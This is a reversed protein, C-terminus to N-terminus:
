VQNIVGKEVTFCRNEKEEFSIHPMIPNPNAATIFTQGPHQVLMELFVAIKQPDLDGFVDDLLLIPTDELHDTFYYLQAMKLSLAFLRHQGQSGFKRLELEDLYFVLDDRHPGILTQEREREKERNQVLLEQYQEAIEKYHVSPTVFTKYEFDPINNIRAIESYAKQLYSKFEEVVSTRRAIIKSGTEVLQVDWPECYAAFVDEPMHRDSLLRNRQRVIKRYDMLDRLYGPYLQSIFSDLFSRRETPGEATLRKDDPSLTVVPVMGILDSLRDLPSQNVTIKKGEGRSYSCGVQFASRIEGEFDGSIEFGSEGKQVVYQDSTAVFSRSMCLFHIADLINTKGAGNQGYILNIHRVWEMESDSHNRFNQLHLRVINM